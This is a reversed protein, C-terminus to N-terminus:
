EGEKNNNNSSNDWDGTAKWRMSIKEEEEGGGERNKM